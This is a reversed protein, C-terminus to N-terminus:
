PCMGTGGFWTSGADPLVQTNDRSGGADSSDKGGGNRRGAARAVAATAEPSAHKKRGSRAQRM